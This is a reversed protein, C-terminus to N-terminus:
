ARQARLPAAERIPLHILAAGAALVIDAYWMWDYSSSLEFTKGGLWAGLFGGFQHSMMVIGFLTAMYRQGHLRAVLGATPPVTSLYTLGIVAAFVLMVAPTKPAFLFALVALGRITYLLSLLSRSRWRNMAWGIGFSGAINFLGIVALSWAGVSPSLGCSAIVGPLHTAIFAVHFGCVFFGSGLLVYSRDGFARRVAERMTSADSSAGGAAAAGAPMWLKASLPIVALSIVALVSLSAVWGIQANMWSALPVIAFQGFSGGANVIGSATGRREPPLLRNIASMLIAPGAAGAGAAALVGITLSLGLLSRMHPTLAMGLAIMVTGGVLVRANGYRDAIAGAIPQGVGWMLQGIAFALSVTGLGLGTATNIQGLYLALSQRVGLTLAFIAAGFVVPLVL